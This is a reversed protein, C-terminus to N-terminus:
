KEFFGTCTRACAQENIFLSKFLSLVDKKGDKNSFGLDLEDEKEGFPSLDNDGKSKVTSNKNVLSPLGSYNQITAMNVEM